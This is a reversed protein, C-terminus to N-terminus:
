IDSLDSIEEEGYWDRKGKIGVDNMFSMAAHPIHKELIKIIIKM